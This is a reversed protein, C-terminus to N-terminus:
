RRPKFENQIHFGCLCQPDVHRPKKLLAGILHDFLPSRQQSQERGTTASGDFSVAAQYTQFLPILPSEDSARDVRIVWLLGHPGVVCPWGLM